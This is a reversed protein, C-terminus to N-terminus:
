IMAFDGSAGSGHVHYAYKGHAVIQQQVELTGAGGMQASWRASDIMGGEFDECFLNGCPGGDGSPKAPATDIDTAADALVDPPTAADDPPRTAEDVAREDVTTGTDVGAALGTDDGRQGAQGGPSTGPPPAGTGSNTCGRLLIAAVAILGLRARPSGM